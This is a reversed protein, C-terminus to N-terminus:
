EWGEPGLRTAEHLFWVRRETEDSRMEILSETAVDGYEDCLSHASRLRVALQANDECLEALMDQAAVSEKDNDVIRQLRAIQGISHLTVGGIKRVREAVDDTTAFIQESQEDLLLHYDRFHPGSVHWHFNKTKVYLAFLDALLITMANSIQAVSKPEFGSPMTAPGRKKHEMARANM